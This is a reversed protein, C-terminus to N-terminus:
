KRNSYGHSYSGTETAPSASSTAASPNPILNELVSKSEENIKLVRKRARRKLARKIILDGWNGDDDPETRILVCDKELNADRRAHHRLEAGSDFGLPAARGRELDLASLDSRRLCIRGLAREPV